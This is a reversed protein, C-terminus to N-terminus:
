PGGLSPALFYVGSRGQVLARQVGEALAQSGRASSIAQTRFTFDEPSVGTGTQGRRAGAGASGKLRTRGHWQARRHLRGGKAQQQQGTMVRGDAYPRVEEVKLQRGDAVAKLFQEYTDDIM